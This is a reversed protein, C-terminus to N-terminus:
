RLKARFKEELAALIQAIALEIESDQLTKEPHYFVLGLAVSKKGAPLDKGAFVDFCLLDQLYIEPEFKWNSIFDLLEQVPQEIDLLLAIDRRVAPFKAIPAIQPLSPLVLASTRLELVFVKGGKGGLEQLVLPHLAGIRGLLEEGLHIDAGQGPHLFKAQSPRFEVNKPLLETAVAKIDFFDVERAARGWQEPAQLGSLVVGM